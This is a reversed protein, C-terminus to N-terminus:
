TEGAEFRRAHFYGFLDVTSAGYLTEARGVGQCGLTGVVSLTGVNVVYVRASSLSFVSESASGLGSWKQLCWLKSGLRPPASKNRNGAMLALIVGDCVANRSTPMNSKWSKRESGIEGGV